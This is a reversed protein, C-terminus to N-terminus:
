PNRHSRWNTGGQSHNTNNPICKSKSKHLHYTTRRRFYYVKCFWETRHPLIGLDQKQPCCLSLNLQPSSSLWLAAAHLPLKCRYFWSLSLPCQASTTLNGFNILFDKIQIECFFFFHTFFSFLAQLWLALKTCVCHTKTVWPILLDDLFKALFMIPSLFVWYM